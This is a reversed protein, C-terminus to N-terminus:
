TRTLHETIPKSHAVIAITVSHEVKLFKTFCKKNILSGKEM